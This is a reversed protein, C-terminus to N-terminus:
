PKMLGRFVEPELVRRGPSLKDYIQSFHRAHELGGGVYTKLGRLVDAKEAEPTDLHRLGPTPLWEKGAYRDMLRELKAPTLQSVPIRGNLVQATFKERTMKVANKLHGVKPEPAGEDLILISWPKTVSVPLDLTKSGAPPPQVWLDFAEKPLVDTLRMRSEQTVGLKLRDMTFDAPFGKAEFPRVWKDGIQPIPVLMDATSWAVSVPCTITPIQSLPSHHYWTRDDTNEGYVKAVQEVIPVISAAAPLTSDIRAKQKLYYAANYGLNVPPMDPAAGALPFTEAALMLTMYGGASGGGILVRADDVFPLARAVHLLAVDCNSTRVLPNAEIQHPTVVVWGRNVLGGATADDLEYGASYYLPAAAASDVQLASPVFVKAKATREVGAPDICSYEVVARTGSAGLVKIRKSGDLRRGLTSVRGDDKVDGALQLTGWEAADDLSGYAAGIWTNKLDACFADIYALTFRVADGPRARLDNPDASNLPISWEFSFVGDKHASAGEGDKQADDADKGPATVHKDVYLGDPGIGKRDDGPALTKGRAFAVMAFDLEIPDLSRNVKEDPVQLAIYLAGASNMFRATCVRTSNGAPNLSVFKLTFKLPPADKWEADGITGDIAPAAACSASPITRPLEPQQVFLLGILLTLNM